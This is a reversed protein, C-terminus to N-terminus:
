RYTRRWDENVGGTGDHGIGTYRRSNLVGGETAWAPGANADRAAAGTAGYGLERFERVVHEPIRRAIGTVLALRSALDATAVRGAEWVYVASGEIRITKGVADAATLREIMRPDLVAHAYRQDDAIVRWMENFEHSETDLDGKNWVRLSAQGLGQPVLELRPLNVDLEALSVQHSVAGSTSSDDNRSEYVHVFSACQHGNFNGAVVSEQRTIDGVGFPYSAFRQSYASTQSAYDWGHDRAFAQYEDRHRLASWADFALWLLGVVLIALAVGLVASGGYPGLVGVLGLIALSAPLAWRWLTAMSIM